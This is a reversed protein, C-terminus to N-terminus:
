EAQTLFCQNHQDVSIAAAVPDFDAVYRTRRLAFPLLSRFPESKGDGKREQLTVISGAMGGGFASPGRLMMNVTSIDVIRHDANVMSLNPRM